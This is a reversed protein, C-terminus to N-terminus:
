WEIRKEDPFMGGRIEVVNVHDGAKLSDVRYRWDRIEVFEGNVILVAIDPDNGKGVYVGRGLPVTESTATDFIMLAILTVIFALLAVLLLRLFRKM